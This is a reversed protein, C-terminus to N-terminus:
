ARAAPSSIVIEGFIQEQHVTIRRARILELVALLTVIVEVRSAADDLLSDFTVQEGLTLRATIQEIKHEITVRHPVVDVTGEVPAAQDLLARLAAILDDVSTDGLDLKAKWSQAQRSVPVARVYMRAGAQERAALFQAARKFIMYERLQRVLDDGSDEEEEIIRPPKPLLARSKILLLRAAIVVFDALDDPRVEEVLRLYALYQDTVRALSVLTIDLAEQEILKLLLDLPGEFVELKVQYTLSQATASQEM